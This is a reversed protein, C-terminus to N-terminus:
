PFYETEENADPEEESQEEQSAGTVGTLGRAPDTVSYTDQGISALSMVDALPKGPALPQALSKGPVVRNRRTVKLEEKDDKGDSGKKGDEQKDEAIADQVTATIANAAANM